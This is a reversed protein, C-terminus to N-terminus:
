ILSTPPARGGLPPGHPKHAFRPNYSTRLPAAELGPAPTQLATVLKLVAVGTMVCDSCHEGQPTQRDPVSGGLLRALEEAAKAAKPSLTSDPTACILNLQAYGQVSAIRLVSVSLSQSLMAILAFAWIIIKFRHSRM